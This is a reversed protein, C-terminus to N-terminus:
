RPDAAATAARPGAQSWSASPAACAAAIRAAFGEIALRADAWPDQAPSGSPVTPAFYQYKVTTILHGDRDRLEASLAAGGLHKSKVPSLSPNADLQARTPRTPAVNEVTVHAGLPRPLALPALARELAADIAERLVGEEDVGYDSRFRAELPPPFVVLTGTLEAGSALPAFPLLVLFLTGAIRPAATM